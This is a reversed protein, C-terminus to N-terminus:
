GKLSALVQRADAAGEFSPNLRLSEQLAKRAKPMNGARAYSLGLHYQFLPNGPASQVSKEFYPLALEPQQKKYYVWGVTDTVAAEAPLRDAAAKALALAQELNEGREAYIYAVNNAAVPTSPDVKLARDYAKLAEETNNQMQLILGVMTHAPIPNSLRTALTEFQRRAEDLKKEKLYLGGLYNYAQLTSPALQIVQRLKAEGAALDSSALDLQASLLLLASNDKHQALQAAVRERARPLQGAQADLSALGSLADVNSPDLTLAQDFERRAAVPDKKMALLMGNLARVEPNKPLNTTLVGIESTARDLERRALLGKVLLLRPALLAPQNTMADRALQVATETNGTSLNLASLAIQADAARPNLKLVEGFSARADTIQGLAMRVSGLVFHAAASKPDIKVAAEADPLADKARRDANLFRARAIHADANGPSAAIVNDIRKYAAAGDGRAYELQALRINATPATQQIKALRELIPRASDPRNTRLYYNALNLEAEPTGAAKTAAKMYPESELVRGSSVYLLAMARNAVGNGPEIKLAQAITEEAEKVSGVSWQYSALALRAAVSQPEIEIARQFNALAEAKKGQALLLGAKNTYGVGSEPSLNIAEEIEKMAGDLDKLGAIASGLVIHAEANKPAHDLARTARARADEFLGAALLYKAATLQLDANDPLLDAARVYERFANQADGSRAYTEALRRRAEGFLPDIKVANRYDLAAEAYQQKAFAANGRELYAQKKKQPDACGVLGVTLALIVACNRIQSMNGVLFNRIVAPPSGGEAGAM